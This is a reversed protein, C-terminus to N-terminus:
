RWRHVELTRRGISDWSHQAGDLGTLVAPYQVVAVLRMKGEFGEM